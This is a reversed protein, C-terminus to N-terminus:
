VVKIELVNIHLQQEQLNWEGGTPIGKCREQICGDKNDFFISSSNPLAWQFDPSKPDVVSIGRKFQQQPICDSSLLTNSEISKNPTALSISFEYEQCQSQIKLVVEFFKNNGWPVRNGLSHEFHVEGPKFCFGFTSPPLNCHRQVHSNRRDSSSGNYVYGGFINSGLYKDKETCVNTNEAIKHLNKSSTGLQFM